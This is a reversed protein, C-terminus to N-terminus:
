SSTSNIRALFAAWAAVALPFRHLHLSSLHCSDVSMEHLLIYKNVLRNVLLILSHLHFPWTSEARPVVIIGYRQQSELGGFLGCYNENTITRPHLMSTYEKFTFILSLNPLPRMHILTNCQTFIYLILFMQQKM